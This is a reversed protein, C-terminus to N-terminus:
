GASRHIRAQRRTHLFAHAHGVPDDPV